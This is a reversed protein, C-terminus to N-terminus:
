VGRPGDDDALSALFGSPPPEAAEGAPPDHKAAPPEQRAAPQSTPPATAPAVPPADVPKRPRSALSEAPTHPPPDVPQSLTDAGAATAAQLERSLLRWDRGNRFGEVLFLGGFLFYLMNNLTVAGWGSAMLASAVIMVAGVLSSVVADVILVPLAGSRSLLAVAAFLLGGIRLNWTSLADGFTGIDTVRPLAFGYFGFVLLCAAALGASYTNGQVRAAILRDLHDTQM